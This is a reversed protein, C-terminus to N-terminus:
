SNYKYVPIFTCTHFSTQYWNWKPFYCYYTTVYSLGIVEGAITEQGPKLVLCANQGTYFSQFGILIRNSVGMVHTGSDCWHACCTSSTIITAWLPWLKRFSYIVTRERLRSLVKQCRSLLWHQPPKWAMSCLRKLLLIKSELKLPCCLTVIVTQM